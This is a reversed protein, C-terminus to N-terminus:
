QKIVLCQTEAIEVISEPSESFYELFAKQVGPTDGGPSDKLNYNHSVLRGGTVPLRELGSRIRM